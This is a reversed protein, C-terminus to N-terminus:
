NKLLLDGIAKEFTEKSILGMSAKPTGKVPIFILTPISSIGMSQALTAEKDTDVKYVVIKGSYEKAVEEVMPSLKKCPGCWTAYFDIIAPMTGEYKWEKNKEYNFVLKKFTDNTLPVVTVDNETGTTKKGPKASIIITILLLTLIASITIIKKM